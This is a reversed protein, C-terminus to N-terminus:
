LSGVYASVAVDVADMLAQEPESLQQGAIIARSEGQSLVQGALMNVATVRCVLQRTGDHQRNLSLLVQHGVSDPIANDAEIAAQCQAATVAEEGAPSVMRVGTEMIKEVLGAPWNGAAALVPLMAQVQDDSLDIGVSSMRDYAARVRPITARQLTGLVIDAETAGTTPDVVATLQQMLWSTSRLTNDAQKISPTNMVKAVAEWDSVALADAAHTRIDQANMENGWAETFILLQLVSIGQWM